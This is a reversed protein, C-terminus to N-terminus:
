EADGEAAGSNEAQQMAITARTAEASVIVLDPDSMLEVGRPMTLDSAKKTDGIKMDSIDIVLESPINQPTTSISVTSVQLDVLGEVAKVAAAEGALVVPVDVSINKALDVILFDVHRVTRRVPDRQLEKVVTPKTVGGWTLNIVANLGAPSSMALRLDRRAIHIPTSETGLGYVVAPIMDATRLRRAPGSGTGRGTEATITIDSM